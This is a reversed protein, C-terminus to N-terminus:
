LYFLHPYITRYLIIIIYKCSNSKASTSPVAYNQCYGNKNRAYTTIGLGILSVILYIACLLFGIRRFRAKWINATRPSRYEASVFIEPPVSQDKYLLILEEKDVEGM